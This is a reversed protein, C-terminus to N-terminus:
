QAAGEALVIGWCSSSARGESPGTGELQLVEVVADGYLKQAQQLAAVQASHTCSTRKGRITNTVYAGCVQRVQIDPVAAADTTPIKM